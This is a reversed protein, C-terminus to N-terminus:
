VQMKSLKEAIRLSDQAYSQALPINKGRVSRIFIYKQHEYLLYFLFRIQYYTDRQPLTGYGRWFAPPSTGCYELVSFEIEPDGWLGRDWDVLGTLNGHKDILINQSWIDMHLLSPTSNHIFAKEKELLLNELRNATDKGYIGTSVIDRLLRSWMNKFADFWNTEEPGTNSGRPYGYWQNTISHFERVAKGLQFFLKETKERSLSTESLPKGPLREMLLWDRKVISGTFDYEFIEAIPVSTNEKVLRHIGPERRMMRKEYFLLGTEPPPAIRLVFDGDKTHIYFSENFKGTQIRELTYTKGKFLAECITKEISLQM